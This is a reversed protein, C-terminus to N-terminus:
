IRNRYGTRGQPFRNQSETQRIQVCVSRCLPVLHPVFPGSRFTVRCTRLLRPHASRIGCCPMLSADPIGSDQLKYSFAFSGTEFNLCARKKFSTVRRAPTSAGCDLAGSNPVRRRCVSICFYYSRARTISPYQTAIEKYM